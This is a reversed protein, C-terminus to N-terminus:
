VGQAAKNATIIECSGYSWRCVGLVVRCDPVITLGNLISLLNGM